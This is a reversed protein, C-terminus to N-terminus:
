LAAKGDMKGNVACPIEKKLGKYTKALSYMEAIGRTASNRCLLLLPECLPITRTNLRKLAIFAEVMQQTSYGYLYM